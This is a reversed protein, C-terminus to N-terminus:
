KYSNWTPNIEKFIKNRIRKKVSNEKILLSRAIKWKEMRYELIENINPVSEILPKWLHEFKLNTLNYQSAEPLYNIWKPICHYIGYRLAIALGEIKSLDGSSM